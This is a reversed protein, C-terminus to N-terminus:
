GPGPYNPAQAFFDHSSRGSTPLDAWFRAVQPTPASIVERFVGREEDEGAYGRILTVIRNAYAARQPTWTGQSGAPVIINMDDDPNNHEGRVTQPFRNDSTKIDESGMVSNYEAGLERRVWLGMNAYAQLAGIVTAPYSNDGSGFRGLRGRTQGQVHVPSQLTAGNIIEAFQSPKAACFRTYDPPSLLYEVQSLGSPPSQIGGTLAKVFYAIEVVQQWGISFYLADMGRGSRWTFPVYSIISGLVTALQQQREEPIDRSDILEDPKSPDPAYTGCRVVGAEAEEEPIEGELGTSPATVGEIGSESAARLIAQRTETDCGGTGMVGQSLLFLDDLMCTTDRNNIRQWRGHTNKGRAHWKGNLVTYEFSPLDPHHVVVPCRGRLESRWNENGADTAEDYDVWSNAPVERGRRPEPMGSDSMFPFDSNFCEPDTHPARPQDVPTTQRWQRRSYDLGLPTTRMARMVKFITNDGTTMAGISGDSRLYGSQELLTEGSMDPFADSFVADRIMERLEKKTVKM